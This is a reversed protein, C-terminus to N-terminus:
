VQESNRREKKAIVCLLLIIVDGRCHVPDNYNVNRSVAKASNQCPMEVFPIMVLLGIILLELPTKVNDLSRSFRNDKTVLYSVLQVRPLM